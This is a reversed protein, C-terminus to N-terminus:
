RSAAYKGSRRGCIARDDRATSRTCTPAAWRGRCPTSPAAADKSARARFRGAPGSFRGGWHRRRCQDRLAHRKGRQSLDPGLRGSVAAVPEGLSLWDTGGAPARAALDRGSASRPQRLRHPDVRARSPEGAGTQERRRAFTWRPAATAISRTSRAAARPSSREEIAVPGGTPKGIDASWTEAPIAREWDCVLARRISSGRARSATGTIGSRAVVALGAVVAFPM